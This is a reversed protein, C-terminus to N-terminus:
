FVHLLFVLRRALCIVRKERRKPWLHSCRQKLWSLKGSVKQVQGFLRVGVENSGGVCDRDSPDHVSKLVIFPDPFAPLPLVCLAVNDRGKTLREHDCIGSAFSLSGCVSRQMWFCWKISVEDLTTLNHSSLDIEGRGAAYGCCGRDTHYLDDHKVTEFGTENM